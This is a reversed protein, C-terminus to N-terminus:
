SLFMMHKLKKDKTEVSHSITNCAYLVVKKKKKSKYNFNICKAICNQLRFTLSQILDYFIDNSLANKLFCTSTKRIALKVLRDLKINLISENILCVLNSDSKCSCPDLPNHDQDV